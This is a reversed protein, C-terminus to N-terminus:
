MTKAGAPCSKMLIQGCPRSINLIKHLFNWFIRMCKQLSNAGSNHWFLIARRCLFCDGDRRAVQEEYNRIAIKSNKPFFAASQHHFHESIRIKSTSCKAKFNRIKVSKTLFQDFLFLRLFDWFTNRLRGPHESLAGSLNQSERIVGSCNQFFLQM